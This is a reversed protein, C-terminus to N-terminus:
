LVCNRILLYNFLLIAFFILIYSFFMIFRGLDILILGYFEQSSNHSRSLGTSLLDFCDHLM